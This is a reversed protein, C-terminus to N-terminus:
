PLPIFEQDDGPISPFRRNRWDDKAREIRAKSSSVFNWDIYRPSELPDGGLLMIRSRTDAVLVPRTGPHFVAMDQAGVRQTGCSFGGEVVYAARENQESPLELTAGAPLTLEAFFLPSLTRVPATAGFATGAIVRIRADGLTLEPLSDSSHHQFSPESEEEALPLAVWLQLQHIRSGTARLPQPTRESHVIGRGASMWNIAGPRIPQYSGLSDQHLIEGEFLYSVTALGIHPHPRVDMGQGPALEAPGLHDLFCWPGVMRRTRAPLVRAVTFRDIVRPRSKLISAISATDCDIQEPDDSGTRSM